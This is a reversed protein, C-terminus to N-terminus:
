TTTRYFTYGGSVKRAFRRMTISPVIVIRRVQFPDEHLALPGSDTAIGFHFGAHRVHEKVQSNLRGYPYAFTNVAVGLSTELELKSQHIEHDAQESSVQSLDSHAVTHAGFEVLGSALMERRQSQNMLRLSKEGKSVDWDNAQLGSVLYIVAKANYKKLLPLLLRYNDEYGDDFTLIVARQTKEFVLASNFDSFHLTQYGQDRLYRLQEEFMDVRIHTAFKGGDADSEVLRHYCLIPIERRFFSVYTSRYIHELRNVVTHLGDHVWAKEVPAASAGDTAVTNAPESKILDWDLQRERRSIDDVNSALYEELNNETVLGLASSVGCALTNRDHPRGEVVARESGVVLTRRQLRHSVDCAAHSERALRHLADHVFELVFPKQRKGLIRVM